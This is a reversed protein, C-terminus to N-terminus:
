NFEDKLKEYLREFVAFNKMYSLHREKDPLYEATAPNFNNEITLGTIINLAQLGVIAAGIASSEVSTKILVRKNFIDALMQVWLRSKAFGGSAYIVEISGVTEELAKGVDYMGFIVGEMIARIFHARHHHTQIGFFVGKAKADWHPAREGTLYPLFILGESGASVTLAEATLSSYAASDDEDKRELDKPTTSPINFGTNFWNLLNGGNNVAGGLVYMDPTLMYSFIRAKPDVKPKESVLRIAGSTGITVSAVGPDIAQAGLNALCGDSGGIIFPTNAPIQMRDSYYSNLGSRTYEIPVPKSLQKSSIGAIKLAPGYWKHTHINCLGTASAISYDVVYQGFLKLFVYEKISIFKYSRKYVEEMHMKIWGLKCLPSMPHIPTGTKMYIDNGQKSNKLKSAFSESRTDAWIICNTLPRDNKDMAILGHMASSFSIGVLEFDAHQYKILLNLRYISDIVSEFLLDPDQEYYTPHPSLISHVSRFEEIIKGTSEFAIAKTASTGIDVGIIYKM